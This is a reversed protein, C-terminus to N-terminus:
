LRLFEVFKLRLKKRIDAKEYLLSETEALLASVQDRQEQRLKHGSYVAEEFIEVADAFRHAYPDTLNESLAPIWERFPLKGGGLGFSDLWAGIRIFMYRVSEAHDESVFHEAFKRAERIGKVMRILFVSLFGFCLIILMLPVANGLGALWEPLSLQEEDETILRFERGADSPGNGSILSRSNVHRTEPLEGPGNRDQDTKQVTRLSIRDRVTESQEELWLDTGPRWMSVAASTIILVILYFLVAGPGSKKRILQIGLFAFLIVNAASPITLGFYAQGAAAALALAGILLPDKSFFAAALLSSATLFLLFAAPVVSNEGSVPFRDYRYANARESAEFLRNLLEMGSNRVAPILLFFACLIPVCLFFRGIRSQLDTSKEDTRIMVGSSEAGKNIMGTGKRDM